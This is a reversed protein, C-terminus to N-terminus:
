PKAFIEHFFLQMAEWSRRAAKENYAVGKSKDTGNNPNSFSHVADRKLM